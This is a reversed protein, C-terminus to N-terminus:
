GTIMDNADDLVKDDFDALYIQTTKLDEHGLGESIVEVSYGMKKAITAWSHRAVYTSINTEINCMEALQKLYRNMFQLGNKIDQAREMPDETRKIFPFIFSDPNTDTIYCNLIKQIQDNIKISYIKDTKARKYVIRGNKIDSIKLNVMDTWNMGRTYFSFMFYNRTHWVSTNEILEISKIREIEEKTIARKPTKKNKIKYTYFPYLDRKFIGEKIARNIVARLTRFYFSLSNISNGKNLHFLEFNKLWKYNINKLPIDQGSLYNKFVSYVSNYARANGIKNSRILEDIIEKMYSLFFTNQNENKIFNIIDDITNISEIDELKLLKDKAEAEKKGLFNDLRKYNSHNRRPRSTKYDWEKIKASYGLSIRRVKREHIFQMMIPHQGNSLTKQKYLIIKVSAM